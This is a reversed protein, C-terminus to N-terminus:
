GRRQYPPLWLIATDPKGVRAPTCMGVALPLEWFEIQLSFFRTRSDFRVSPESFIMDRQEAVTLFSNAHPAPRSRRGRVMAPPNPFGALTGM